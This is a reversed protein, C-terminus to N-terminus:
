TLACSKSWDRASAMHTGTVLGSQCPPEIVHTQWSRSALCAAGGRRIRIALRQRRPQARKSMWRRSVLPPLISSVLRISASPRGRRQLFGPLRVLSQGPTSTDLM